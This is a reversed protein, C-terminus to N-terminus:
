FSAVKELVRESPESVAMKMTRDRDVSTDVYVTEGAKLNVLLQTRGKDSAELLHEGAAVPLKIVTRPKIKGQDEGDVSVRYSVGRTAAHEVTRFLVLNAQGADAAPTSEALANSGWFGAVLMLTALLLNNLTSKM